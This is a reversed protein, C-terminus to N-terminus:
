ARKRRRLLAGVGVALAALATPEPVPATTIVPTGLGAFRLDGAATRRAAFLPDVGYAMPRTDAGGDFAYAVMENGTPGLTQVVNIDNVNPGTRYLLAVNFGDPNPADIGTSTLTFDYTLVAATSTVRFLVARDSLPADGGLTFASGTGTIAGIDDLRRDDYAISGGTLGLNSVSVSSNGNGLGTGDTLQFDLFLYPDAIGPQGLSLSGVSQTVRYTVSAAPAVAALAFAALLALNKM